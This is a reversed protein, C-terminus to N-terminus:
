RCWLFAAVILGAAAVRFVAARTANPSVTFLLPTRSNHGVPVMVSAKAALEPIAPMMGICSFFVPFFFLWNIGKNMDGTSALLLVALIFGLPVLGYMARTVWWKGPFAARFEDEPLWTARRYFLRFPLGYLVVGVVMGAMMLLPVFAQPM